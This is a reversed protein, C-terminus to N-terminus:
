QTLNIKYIYPVNPCQIMYLIAFFLSFLKKKTKKNQKIKQIHPVNSCQIKYIVPFFSFLNNKTKKIKTLKRFTRSM